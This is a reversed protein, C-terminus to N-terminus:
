LFTQLIKEPQKICKLYYQAKLFLKQDETLDCQKQTKVHYFALAAAVSINFSQCFGTMPIIVTEDVSKLLEPSVGEHENGFILATPKQFDIAEIPKKACLDTAVIQFGQDKLARVCDQTKSFYSIRLWKEAGKTVRNAKKKQLSKWNLVYFHYFGFAEASRMAASMNGEDHVNEFVPIFSSIRQAVVQHIKEVRDKTLLSELHDVLKSLEINQLDFDM